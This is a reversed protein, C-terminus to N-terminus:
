NTPPPRFWLDHAFEPSIAALPRFDLKIAQSQENSLCLLVLSSVAIVALVLAIQKTVPSFPDLEGAGVTARNSHLHEVTVKAQSHLAISFPNYLLLGVLLFAILCRGIDIGPGFVFSNRQTSM